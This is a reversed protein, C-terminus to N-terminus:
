IGLLDLVLPVASELRADGCLSECLNFACDPAVEELRARLGALDGDIGVVQAEHGADALALAVDTAVRGVEARSAWAPDSEPRLDEYDVNHLVAIRKGARTRRTPPRRERASAADPAEFQSLSPPAEVTMTESRTGESPPARKRFAGPSVGKM